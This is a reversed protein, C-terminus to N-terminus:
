VKINVIRRIMVHGIMISVLVFALMFHGPRTTLMPEFYRPNFLFLFTGLAFPLVTLVSASLRGQATMVRMERMLKLHHSTAAWRVTKMLLTWQEDPTRDLWDAHQQRTSWYYPYLWAYLHDNTM